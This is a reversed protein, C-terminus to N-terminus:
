LPKQVRLHFVLPVIFPLFSSSALRSASRPTVRYVVHILLLCIGLFHTRHALVFPFVDNSFIIISIANLFLVVTPYTTM